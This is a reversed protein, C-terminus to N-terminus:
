RRWDALYGRPDNYLADSLRESEERMVDAAGQDSWQPSGFEANRLYAFLGAATLEEATTAERVCTWLHRQEQEKSVIIARRAVVDSALLAAVATGLAVMGEGTRGALILAAGGVFALGVVAGLARAGLSIWYAKSELEKVIGTNRIVDIRREFEILPRTPLAQQQAKAYKVWACVQELQQPTLAGAKQHVLAAFAAMVREPETNLGPDPYGEYDLLQTTGTRTPLVYDNHNM